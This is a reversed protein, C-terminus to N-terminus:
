VGALSQYLSGLGPVQMLLAELCCQYCLTVVGHYRCLRCGLFVSVLSPLEEAPEYMARTFLIVALGSTTQVTQLLTAVCCLYKVNSHLLCQTSSSHPLSICYPM